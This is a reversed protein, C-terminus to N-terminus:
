QCVDRVGQDQLTAAVKVWDPWQELTIATLWVGTNVGYEIIILDGGKKEVRVIGDIEGNVYIARRTGQLNLNDVQQLDRWSLPQVQAQIIRLPGYSPVQKGDDATTYGTSIRLKAPVFPNVAGIVGAVVGHLNM